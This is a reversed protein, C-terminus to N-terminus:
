PVRIEIIGAASTTTRTPEAGSIAVQRVDYFGPQSPLKLTAEMQSSEGSKARLVDTAVVAAAVPCDVQQVGSSSAQKLSEISGFPGFVGVCLRIDVPAANSTPVLRPTWVIRLSDGPSFPGLAYTAVYQYQAAPPPPTAASVCSAALLAPLVLIRIVNNV